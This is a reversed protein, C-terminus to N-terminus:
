ASGPRRGVFLNVLAMGPMDARGRGASWKKIGALKGQKAFVLAAAIVADAHDDRGAFIM